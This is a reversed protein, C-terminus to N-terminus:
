SFLIEHSCRSGCETASAVTRRVCNRSFERGDWPVVRQVSLCTIELYPLSPLSQSFVSLSVYLMSLFQIIAFLLCRLIVFPTFYPRESLASSQNGYCLRGTTNSKGQIPLMKDPHGLLKGIDNLVEPNLFASHSYLKKGLVVDALARVRISGLEVCCILM